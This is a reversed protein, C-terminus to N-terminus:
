GFYNEMGNIDIYYSTASPDSNEMAGARMEGAPSVGPVVSFLEIPCFSSCSQVGVAATPVHVPHSMSWFGYVAVGLPLAAGPFPTCLSCLQPVGPAAAAGSCDQLVASSLAQISPFSHDSEKHFSFNNKRNLITRNFFIYKEKFLRTMPFCKTM